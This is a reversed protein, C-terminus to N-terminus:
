LIGPVYRKTRRQYDVYGDMNRTLLREERITRLVIALWCLATFFWSVRCSLMLTAGATLMFGATYLPHRVYRYPGATVIRATTVRRDVYPTFGAGLARNAAFAVVGSSLVLAGGAINLPLWQAPRFIIYELPPVAIAALSTWALLHFTPDVLARFVDRWTRRPRSASTLVRAIIIVGIYSLLLWM